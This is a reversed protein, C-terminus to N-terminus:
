YYCIFSIYVKLHLKQSTFEETTKLKRYRCHTFPPSFCLFYQDITFKQTPPQQMIKYTYHHMKKGVRGRKPFFSLQISTCELIIKSGTGTNGSGTTDPHQVPEKERGKRPVCTRCYRSSLSVELVAQLPLCTRQSSKWCLLRSPTAM